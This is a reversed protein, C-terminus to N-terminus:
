TTVHQFDIFDYKLDDYNRWQSHKSKGLTSWVAEQAIVNYIPTVVKTLFAEEDGGYAPKVTEGTVPCVNGALMDYVESAMEQPMPPLWLNSKQDLYKCWKKYNTFLKKMVANLAREDLKPQKNPKPNQRIHVNALLLILHERQNAVNDKQFGFM